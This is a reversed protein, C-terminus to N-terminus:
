GGKSTMDARERGQGAAHRGEAPAARLRLLPRRHARPARLVDRLRVGDHLPHGRARGGRPLRALGSNYSLTM